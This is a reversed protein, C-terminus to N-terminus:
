AVAAVSFVDSCLFRPYSQRHMLSFVQSQASDFLDQPVEEKELNEAIQQRTKGAINVEKKSLPKVFMEYIGNRKTRQEDSEVTLTRFIEVELWFELNEESYEDRLFSAFFKRGLEDDMVNKFGSRWLQIQEATPKSNVDQSASSEARRSLTLSQEENHAHATFRSCCTIVYCLCMCSRGGTGVYSTSSISPDQLQKEWPLQYRESEERSLVHKGTFQHKAM